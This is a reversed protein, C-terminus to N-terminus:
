KNPSPNYKIDWEQMAKDFDGEAGIRQWFIQFDRKAHELQFAMTKTKDKLFLNINTEITDIYDNAIELDSQSSQGGLLLGDRYAKMIGFHSRRAYSEAVKQRDRTLHVYFANDGFRQNLRGLIWCLRNDSEIHNDPYTLRQEGILPLRSEHGSTFNTIHGCAKSFTM